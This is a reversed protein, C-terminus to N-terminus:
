VTGSSYVRWPEWKRDMSMLLTVPLAAPHERCRQEEQSPVEDKVYSGQM